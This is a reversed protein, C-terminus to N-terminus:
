WWWDRCLFIEKQGM